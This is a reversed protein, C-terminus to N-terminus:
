TDESPLSPRRTPYLALALGYVVDGDRPSSVFEDALRGLREAWEEVRDPPIRAYRVTSIGSGGTDHPRAAATAEMESVAASMLTTPGIGADPRYALEFTRATRGYYKAEIARVRETRVVRVLGGDELVGLHHGITGKPIDLADALQSTTAARETLLDVILLRTDEFLARYQDVTDLALVDDVEYDPVSPTTAQAQSSTSHDTM